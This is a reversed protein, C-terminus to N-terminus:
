ITEVVKNAPVFDIFGIKSNKEVLDLRKDYFALEINVELAQISDLKTSLVLSKLYDWLFYDLPKLACHRPPWEIDCNRSIISDGFKERM